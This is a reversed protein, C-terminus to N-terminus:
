KRFRGWIAEIFCHWAVTMLWERRIGFAYFIDGARDAKLVKNLMATGLRLTPAVFKGDNLPYETGEDNHRVLVTTSHEGTKLHALVEIRDDDLINYKVKREKRPPMMKLRIWKSRILDM